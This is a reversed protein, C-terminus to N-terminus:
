SGQTDIKTLPKNSQLMFSWRNEPTLQYVPELINEISEMEQRIVRAGSVNGMAVLTKLEERCDRLRYIYRDWYGTLTYINGPRKHPM